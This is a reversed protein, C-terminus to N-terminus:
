AITGWRFGKRAPPEYSCSDPDCDDANSEQETERGCMYLDVTVAPCLDDEQEEDREPDRQDNDAQDVEYSALGDCVVARSM